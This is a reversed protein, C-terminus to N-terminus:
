WSQPRLVDNLLRSTEGPGCGLDFVVEFHGRQLVEKLLAGSTPTLLEHVMKLRRAASEDIGFAYPGGLRPRPM